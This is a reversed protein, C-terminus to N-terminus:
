FIKKQDQIQIHKYELFLRTEIVNLLEGMRRALLGDDMSKQCEREGNEEKKKQGRGEDVV